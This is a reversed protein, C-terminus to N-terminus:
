PDVQRWRWLLMNPEQRQLNGKSFHTVCERGHNLLGSDPVPYGKVVHGVLSQPLSKRGNTRLHNTVRNVRDASSTPEEKLRSTAWQIHGAIRTPWQRQNSKRIRRGDVKIAM